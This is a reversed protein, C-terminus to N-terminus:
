FRIRVGVQGVVRTLLEDESGRTLAAGFGGEVFVSARSSLAGHLGGKGVISGADDSARNTIQAWYETGVYASLVSQPTFYFFAGGMGHLSSAGPGVTADADVAGFTGVGAVGARIALRKTVFRMADIQIVYHGPLTEERSFFRDMFGSFGITTTGPRGLIRPEIDEDTSGTEQALAPATAV